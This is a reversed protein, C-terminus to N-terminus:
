RVIIGKDSLKTIGNADLGTLVEESIEADRAIIASTVDEASADTPAYLIAAANQSGNSAGPTYATYKKSATVLGLIQGAPYKGGTIVGSERSRTGNAESVLFEGARAGENQIPM